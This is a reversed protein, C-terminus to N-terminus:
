KNFKFLLFVILLFVGGVLVITTIGGSGLSSGPAQNQQAQANALAIQTQQALSALRQQEPTLTGGQNNKNILNGAIGGIQQIVATTNAENWHNTREM